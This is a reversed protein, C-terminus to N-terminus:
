VFGNSILDKRRYVSLVIGILFSNLLVPMVGYSIFPLAISTQPFVGLTMGVNCALQVGYLAIAGILLLKAYSDHLKNSIVIFRVMILSLIIVLAIAFLWGYIYTLSVFVFDTHAEPIFEKNGPHGFWGAKSMLEKVRLPLYGAGNAYKKPNLFALIRVLQYTQLLQWSIFGIILVLSFTIGSISMMTKRSFKSWWLMVFVMVSYMFIIVSHPFNLFLLIPVFFLIAFQWIKLKEITFFSAWALFFFPLSMSSELTIISPIRIMPVGNIMSNSFFMIALLFLVGISYFLWGKSKWKRYDLFMIGIAAGGGFIVMITKSVSFHREDIYGLAIMPLFGLGLTSALLLIMFWDVKPKHLKNMQKGLKSPSGMQEIAKEEAEAETLGKDMWLNKAEQLHYGLEDSVYKKAEKSKIQETVEHLFIYKKNAM